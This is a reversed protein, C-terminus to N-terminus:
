GAAGRGEGGGSDAAGPREAEAAAAAPVERDAPLDEHQSKKVILAGSNRITRRSALKKHPCFVYDAIELLKRPPWSKKSRWITRLATFLAHM